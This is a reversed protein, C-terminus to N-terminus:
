KKLVELIAPVMKAAEGALEIGEALELDKVEAPVLKIDKIAAEMLAKFEADATVKSVVAMADDVGVGDKLRAVLFVAIASAAKVVEKTEKIGLKQEM